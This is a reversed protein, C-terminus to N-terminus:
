GAATVRRGIRATTTAPRRTAAHEGVGAPGPSADPLGGPLSGDDSVALGLTGGPDSGAGLVGTTGLEGGEGTIGVSASRGFRTM